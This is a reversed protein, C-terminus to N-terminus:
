YNKTNELCSKVLQNSHYDRCNTSAAQPFPADTVFSLPTLFENSQLSSIKYPYVMRNMADYIAIHLITEVVLQKSEM